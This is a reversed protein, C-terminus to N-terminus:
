TILNTIYILNNLTADVTYPLNYSYKNKMDRLTVTVAGDESSINKIASVVQSIYHVEPIKIYISAIMKNLFTDLTIVEHMYLRKKKKIMTFAFTSGEKLVDGYEFLGDNFIAFDLMATHDSIELFAYNVSTVTDNKTVKKRKRIISILKAIIYCKEGEDIQKFDYISICGLKEFLTWMYQSLHYPSIGLSKEQLNWLTMINTDTDYNLPTRSLFNKYNKFLLSRRLLKYYISKNKVLNVSITATHSVSQFGLNDLAGSYVLGSWIKQNLFSSNKEVFQYMDDYPKQNIINDASAKNMGKIECLGYYLVRNNLTCYAMSNEVSPGHITYNHYTLLEYVYKTIKYINGSEYKLYSNSFEQLYHIKLYLCYYAIVSYCAAHARNFAYGVFTKIAIWIEEVVNIPISNDKCGQFFKNKQANMVSARKKGIARRFLDAQSLTYNACVRAIEMVQEQYVIIGYTVKLIDETLPHPYQVVVHGNKRAIYEKIFKFPGPRYLSTMAILDNLETPQLQHLIQRMNTAEFQFIGELCLDLGTSSLHKFVDIDDYKIDELCLKVGQNNIAQVAEQIVSLTKLGLFDFKVFGVYELHNLNFQTVLEGNNDRFLPCREYIPIDSIIVGAAHKSFNRILGELQLAVDFVKKYKEQLYLEQLKPVTELAEKLSVPNVQDIPILSTIYILQSFPIRFVRGVDRVVARAQLVMYTIIQLVNYKGYKDQVYKILDGRKNPPFDIDFDPMSDREPNLFREFILGFEIPDLATIGIAYAVLSGAGSGRGMGVLVGNDKAYQVFDATVLFYNSFNKKVIVSIEYQVRNQYEQPIDKVECKLNNALGKWVNTYLLDSPKLDTHFSPISPPRSELIFTCKQAVLCSNEVGDLLDPFRQLFHDVDPFGHNNWKFTDRNDENYLDNNQILSFIYLLEKDNKHLYRTTGTIIIPIKKINAHNVLHYIQTDIFENINIEIVLNDKFIRMLSDLLQDAVVETSQTAIVSESGTFAILGESYTELEELDIIRDNRIYSHSIMYSLNKYGKDNIVYVPIKGLHRVELICGIIPKINNQRMTDVFDVVGFLNMYDCIAITTIKNDQCYKVIDKTKIISNFNSYHSYTRFNVFEIKSM